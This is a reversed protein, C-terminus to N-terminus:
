EKLHLEFRVPPPKGSHGGKGANESITLAFILRGRLGLCKREADYSIADLM